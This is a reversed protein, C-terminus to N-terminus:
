KDLIPSNEANVILIMADVDKVLKRFSTQLKVEVVNHKRGELKSRGHQSVLCVLTRSITRM